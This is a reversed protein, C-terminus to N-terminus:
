ARAVYGPFAITAIHVQSTKKYATKSSRLAMKIADIVNDAIITRKDKSETRKRTVLYVDDESLTFVVPIHTFEIGNVVNNYCETIGNSLKHPNFFILDPKVEAILDNVNMLNFATFVLFGRDRLLQGDAIETLPDDGLLLIKIRM